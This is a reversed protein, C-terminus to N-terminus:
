KETWAFVNKSKEYGLYENGGYWELGTKVWTVIAMDAISYGYSM